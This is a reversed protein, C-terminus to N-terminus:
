FTYAIGLVGAFQSAKGRISTTPADKFDGLLRSYNVGAVIGLGGNTLDGDLDVTGFLGTSINKWGGTADFTPLGSVASDGPSISYYYRAYRGSVREASVNLAVAAGRSLPTLFTLAPAIVVSKHASAVDARVDVSFTLSDYPNTLRNFSVGANGGLEVAAKRTGLLAVVDDSIQRTRDLRVRVVPGAQFSVRAGAPDNIFDLALGAIRPAIGVGGIKGQVAAGPFLVYDDSGEYSPGAAIGGVVTLYNGDFISEARPPPIEQAVAPTILAAFSAAATLSVALARMPSSVIM